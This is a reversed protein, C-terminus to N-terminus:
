PYVRWPLLTGLMVLLSSAVMGQIHQRWVAELFRTGTLPMYSFVKLDALVLAASLWVKDEVDTPMEAGSAQGLLGKPVVQGHSLDQVLSCCWVKGGPSKEHWRKVLPILLAM